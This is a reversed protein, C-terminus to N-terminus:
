NGRSATMGEVTVAHELPPQPTTSSWLAGQAATLVIRRKSLFINTIKGQQNSLSDIVVQFIEHKKPTTVLEFCHTPALPRRLMFIKQRGLEIQVASM